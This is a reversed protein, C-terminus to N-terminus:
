AHCNGDGTEIFHRLLAAGMAQSKEPHFQVGVFNGSQVIAAVAGHGDVQVHSKLVGPDPDVFYSHNFYFAGDVQKNNGLPAKCLSWGVHCGANAFRRVQGRLMGLGAVDGEESHEFMLQMGLCIGIVPTRGDELLRAIVRDLGRDRLNHIAAPMAGVGPLIVADVGTFEAPEASVRVRYNLRRFAGALSGLNGVGYDLVVVRKLETIGADSDLTVM